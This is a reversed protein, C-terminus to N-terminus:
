IIKGLVYYILKDLDANFDQKLRKKQWINTLMQRAEDADIFSTNYDNVRRELEAILDDTDIQDIIDDVDISTNFNIYTM